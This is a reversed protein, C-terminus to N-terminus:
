EKIVKITKTQNDATVKVFYNGSSFDSMDVQTTNAELTNEFVKQGLLNYVEVNTINQIYSLNLIDKVPNPYFKFASANFHGNGLENYISIDDVMLLNQNEESYANFGFYYVGTTSPTFNQINTESSDNNIEFHDAIEETMGDVDASTGYMVKLNEAWDGSNGYRYSITYQTGAVLNIGRTFFWTDAPNDSNYEYVLAKSIFSDTPYELVTWDNGTGVNLSSTCEPLSYEETAEFDQTYPVDVANCQTNFVLPGIWTGNGNPAGCVSRVWVKYTTNQTLGEIPYNLATLVASPSLTDPDSVDSGGYAVQWNTESGGPSWSVTTAVTTTGSTGIEIVDPCLPAIEWRINDLLIQDGINHRIGIYTDTGDYTTFDVVYETYDETIGVEQWMTFVADQSTNDLTGIELSGTIYGYSFFKLRHTGTTLTSLNPSVLIVDTDATEEENYTSLRVSNPESYVGYDVTSINAYGPTDEGRIISSWCQPLAGLETDDFNENFVAIPLCATVFSVPGIWAGDGDPAGCKSRVWIKYATGPELESITSEPTGTPSPTIPVLPNPDTVTAPAYVVDWATEADGALWSFSATATTIGTVKIETVDACLPAVEWRIDDLFAAYGGKFKIGIFADTGEYSTFDVAYEAYGDTLPVEEILSFEATNTSSSLTGIELSAGEDYSFAYFKIRHTASGATSLNPSVLFVETDESEKQLMVSNPGSYAESDEVGVRDYETVQEGRVISSWCEPLDLEDTTDFNENFLAIPLCPTSYTVPGIWGGDNAGCVSRVWINYSTGAELDSITGEPTGLIPPAVPTLTNPDTVTALGYVIDWETEEGGTNWNLTISNTTSETVSISNVDPCLPAVEWRINDLFVSSGSTIRFGIFTDTGSYETFDVVYENSGSGIQLAENFLTFTADETFGDLTGVELTAPAFSGRVFFKLRHTAQSLNGLVPSVLIIKANEGSNSRYMEASSSENAGGYPVTQVYAYESIGEGGVIASWCTPLNEEETNEFDEEFLNVSDCGSFFGVTNWPSFAAGCKSRVYFNYASASELITTTYEPDNLVETGSTSSTPAPLDADLVLVEWATEEGSPEWTFTANTTTIGSVMMELIPSCDLVIRFSTLHEEFMTTNCEADDSFHVKIEESTINEVTLPSPGFAIVNNEMDTITIYKHQAGLKCSFEYSESVTINNIVAFETTWSDIAIVQPLGINNSEIPDYPVPEENESLCQAYSSTTVAMFLAILLTIKKM